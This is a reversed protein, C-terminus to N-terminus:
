RVCKDRDTQGAATGVCVYVGWPDASCGCIGQPTTLYLCSPHLSALKSDLVSRRPFCPANGCPPVGFRWCSLASARFRNFLVTNCQYSWLSCNMLSDFLLLASRPGPPYTRIFSFTEVPAVSEIEGSKTSHPGGPRMLM